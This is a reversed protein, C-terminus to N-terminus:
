RPELECLMKTPYTVFDTPLAATMDPQCNAVRSLMMNRNGGVVRQSDPRKGRDEALYGIMEFDRAILQKLTKKASRL